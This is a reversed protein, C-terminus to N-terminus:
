SDKGDTSSRSRRIEEARELILNEEEIKKRQRIAEAGGALKERINAAGDFFCQELWEQVRHDIIGERPTYNLWFEKESEVGGMSFKAKLSFRFDGM